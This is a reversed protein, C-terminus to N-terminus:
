GLEVSWYAEDLFTKWSEYKEHGLRVSIVPNRKPQVPPRKLKMHAEQPTRGGKRANCRICACVLNTWTDGGGQARPTVHDISLESSPFHHGCYQCHNRDRAFLNRRNLKVQQRPLRDYGYLRIVRPVALESSVTRVWEHRDHEYERYLEGIEAWSKFDFNNYQGNDVHIVEAVDNFLLVFARRASVVRIARYLRNLVLVKSELASPSVLAVAHGHGVPDLMSKGAARHSHRRSRKM